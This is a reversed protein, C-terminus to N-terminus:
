GQIDATIHHRQSAWLFSAPSLETELAFSFSSFIAKYAHDEGQKLTHFINNSALVVIATHCCEEKSFRKLLSDSKLSSALAGINGLRNLLGLLWRL